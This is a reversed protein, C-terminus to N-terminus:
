TSSPLSSMRITANAQPKNSSPARKRRSLMAIAGEPNHMLYSETLDLELYGAELGSEDLAGKVMTFLHEMQMQRGSLNVAVGPLGLGAEHWGRTQRCARGNVRQNGGAPGAGDM